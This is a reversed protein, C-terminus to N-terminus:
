PSFVKPLPNSTETLVIKIMEKELLERVNNEGNTKFYFQDKFSDKLEIQIKNETLTFVDSPKQVVRSNLQSLLTDM